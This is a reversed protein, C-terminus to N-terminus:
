VWFKGLFRELIFQSIKCTFIECPQRCIVNQGASYKKLLRTYHIHWKSLMTGTTLWQVVWGPRRIKRTAPSCSLVQRQTHEVTAQFLGLEQLCICPPGFVDCKKYTKVEDFLQGIKL